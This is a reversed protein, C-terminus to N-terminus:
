REERRPRDLDDADPESPGDGVHGVVRFDVPTRWKTRSIEDRGPRRGGNAALYEAEGQERLAQLAALEEPTGVREDTM